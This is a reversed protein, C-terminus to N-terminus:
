QQSYYIALLIIAIVQCVIRSVMLKNSYKKYLEKKGSVMLGLGIMLSLLTLGMFIFILTLIM